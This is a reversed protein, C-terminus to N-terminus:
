AFEIKGKGTWNWGKYSLLSAYINEINWLITLSKIVVCPGQVIHLGVVAM